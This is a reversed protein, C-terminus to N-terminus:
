AMLKLDRAIETAVQGNYEDVRGSALFIEIIWWFGIGGGTLWFAVGMGTKGLLFHQIPFLIALVVIVGKSWAQQNYASEFTLRQTEDMKNFSAMVVPPYKATTAM